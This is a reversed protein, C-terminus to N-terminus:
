QMKKMDDKMQVEMGNKMTEMKDDIKPKMPEAMETDMKKHSMDKMESGMKKMGSDTKMESMTDGKMGEMGMDDTGACGTLVFLTILVAGALMEANKIKM